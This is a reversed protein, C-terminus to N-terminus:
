GATSTICSNRLMRPQSSPFLVRRLVRWPMPRNMWDQSAFSCFRPPRRPSVGSRIPMEPCPLERSLGAAGVTACCCTCFRSM